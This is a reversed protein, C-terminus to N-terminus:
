SAHAAERPASSSTRPKSLRDEIWADLLDLPYLPKRGFHVVPPGSSTTSFWRALTAPKLPIGRRTLHESAESRTLYKAM